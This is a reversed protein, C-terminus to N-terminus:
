YLIKEVRQIKISFFVVFVFIIYHELIDCQINLDNAFYVDNGDYQPECICEAYRFYETQNQDDREVESCEGHGNCGTCLLINIVVGPSSRGRKNRM